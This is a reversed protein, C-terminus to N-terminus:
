KSEGIVEEARRVFRLAGRLNDSAARSAADTDLGVRRLPDPSALSNASVTLARAPLTKVQSYLGDRFADRANSLLRYVPGRPLSALIRDVEELSASPSESLHTSSDAAHARRVETDAPPAVASVRDALEKLTHLAEEALAADTSREARVQALADLTEADRDGRLYRLEAEAWRAHLRAKARLLAARDGANELCLRFYTERLESACDPATSADARRTRYASEYLTVATSLDTKLDGDRLESVSVFLGPYLKGVAKRYAAADSSAAAEELQNLKALVAEAKRMDKGGPADARAARCTFALLCLLILPFTRLQPMHLIFTLDFSSEEFGHSGDCRRVPRFPVGVPAGTLRKAGESPQFRTRAIQLVRRTGSFETPMFVRRNLRAETAEAALHSNM